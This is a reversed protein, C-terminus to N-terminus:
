RTRRMPRAMAMTATATVMSKEIIWMTGPSGAEIMSPGRAVGSSRSAIRSRSPSSSGNMTCTPENKRLTSRPSRPMSMTRSWGTVSM